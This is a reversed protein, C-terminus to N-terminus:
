PWSSVVADGPRRAATQLSRSEKHDNVLVSIRLLEALLPDIVASERGGGGATPPLRGTIPALPFSMTRATIRLLGETTLAGAEGTGRKWVCTGDSGTMSVKTSALEPDM